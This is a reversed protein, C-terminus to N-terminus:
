TEWPALKKHYHPRKHKKIKKILTEEIDTGKLHSNYGYATPPINTGKPDGGGGFGPYKPYVGNGGQMKHYPNYTPDHCNIPYSHCPLACQIVQNPYEIHCPPSGNARICCNPICRHGYWGYPLCTCESGCGQINSCRNYNCKPGQLHEWESSPNDYDSEDEALYIRKELNKIDSQLIKQHIERLTENTPAFLRDRTGTSYSLIPM